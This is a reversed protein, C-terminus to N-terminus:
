IHILFMKNKEDIFTEMILIALYIEMMLICNPDSKPQFIKIKSTTAISTPNQWEM